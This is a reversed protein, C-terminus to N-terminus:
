ERDHVLSFWDVVEWGMEGLFMKINDEWRHRPRRHPRRWDPRGVLINYASRMKGMGAVHGAWPMSRSKIV